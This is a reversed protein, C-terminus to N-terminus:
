SRTWPRVDNALDALQIRRDEASVLRALSRYTQELGFRLSRETLEWELLRQGAPARGAAVWGLAAQLVEATLSEQSAADLRLQRLQQGAQTLSALSLGAPPRWSLRARLAGVQAAVHHSSTEPVTDLVEIAGATDGDALRVRALGFAASVYSHDITWVVQFHRAAAAHDGAAEAALAVALRPALEGPLADYVGEFEARAHDPRGGALEILGQYWTVRWDGRGADVLGGLDAAAGALDGTMIRARALALRVEVSDAVGPAAKEGAVMVAALEAAQGPADLVSLTALYGAAPDDSDALPAPLGALIDAATVPEAAATARPPGAGGPGAATAAGIAQLEPSFLTSLSPRQKRDSTSLVERLVGTLQEAMEAATTFRRLPDPDTARRLLRYYSDQEALLPVTEQAPLGHLYERTFGAFSFTTVALTRGVTYLDSSPSPLAGDRTIEPAQYGPTGYIDSTVDDIRRVAGMDILKLHDDALMTNDPKFDCYVLGKSHLYGLATLAETAYTLAHELPLLGAAMQKLSQGGVYEMVIYGAMTQTRRDAHQVFNYVSVIGPHKAEVLFRREAIAAAQAAADGTDLLGKLVVWEKDLHHDRALYIWGQGGYALCGVVEYQGGVMEDRELKPTFSYQAGDVPCFGETRGPQGDRGRGVPHRGSSGCFRKSEEVQPSDLVATAPDRVPVPPLEILGAGLRRRGTHGASPRSGTTGRSRPVPVSVRAAPVPDATAPRAVATGAAGTAPAAADARLGCRGCYGGAEITGTCGPQQCATVPGTAGSTNM